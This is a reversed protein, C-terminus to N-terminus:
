FKYYQGMPMSEIDKIIKKVSFKNYKKKIKGDFGILIIKFTNNSEIVKLNVFRKNFRIINKKYKNIADIYIKNNKSPTIIVLIRNM